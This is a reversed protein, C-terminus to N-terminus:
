RRGEGHAEPRVRDSGGRGVRHPERDAVFRALLEADPVSPRLLTRLLRHPGSTRHPMRPEERTCPVPPPGAPAYPLQRFPVHRSVRPLAPVPQAQSSVSIHHSPCRSRVPPSRRGTPTAATRGAWCDGPWRRTRPLPARVRTWPLAVEVSLSHSRGP